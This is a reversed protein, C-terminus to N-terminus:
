AAAQALLGAIHLGAMVVASARHWGAAQCTACPLGNSRCRALGSTQPGVLPLAQEPAGANNAITKLPVKLANTVIEVGIKQDFNAAAEKAAALAKSAYLLAVGGGPM